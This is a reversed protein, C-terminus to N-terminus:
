STSSTSIGVTFELYLNSDSFITVEGFSSVLKTTELRRLVEEVFITSKVFVDSRVVKNSIPSSSTSGSTYLPDNSQRHYVPNMIKATMKIIGNIIPKATVLM